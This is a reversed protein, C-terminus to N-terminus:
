PKVVYSVTANTKHSNQDSAVIVTVVTKQDSSEASIMGTTSQGGFAMTATPKVTLGGAKLHDNYFAVVKDVSDDTIMTFNQSSGQTTSTTSLGGKVEAGPYTPLWDPLGKPPQASASMTSTNGKDDTVKLMAGSGNAATADFVATGKDSSFKFKGNKIDDMNMTITENTKKNHITMTNASDDESVIDLDPNAQIILRTAAMGPNKQFPDVVKTKFLYGAGALVIVGIFLIAGCGIAIWGVPGMGKKAAPQVPPPSQVTM